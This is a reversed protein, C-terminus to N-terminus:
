LDGDTLLEAVEADSLRHRRRRSLRTCRAPSTPWPPRSSCCGCRCTSTSAQRLQALVRTALLSHGGLDFFDDHVGVREVGLVSPGSRPWCSRSRPRPAGRVGRGRAARRGDPAPLAGRDVKGNRRDAAARGAGRVGGPVMYDPLRERLHAACRRGGAAATRRRGRLRGPAPRGAADERALVVAERVAPHEALAAEIEGLEIRFGRIKVQHDVRGLYELERGAAGACWTGPATCGRARGGFPDPVFREATLEPGTWTAAPWGAGGIYLEGPM